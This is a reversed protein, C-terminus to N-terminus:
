QAPLDSCDVRRIDAGIRSLNQEFCEYGRDIHEITLLDTQGHAALAATAIAAGGRLDTCWVTASHLREVGHVLAIRGEVKIDAGMRILEPVHKYRSEFINEVFMSTGKALCAAAMLPSQADTPFGPYPMTRVCRLARLPHKAQLRITDNAVRVNCGMEEFCPLIASLHETCVHTLTIDGGTAAACSLYTAAAIRDSIVRHSASHLSEVGIIHIDGTGTIFINAGCATLFAALDSIEPERAANKIVTEGQALTAAIMINETAGVSPFPLSIVAGHLKDKVHCNLYGHDEEITVGLREIAGLHLDIPRPGLECGGPLSIRAQGCRAIIAGLFVISSRMKRMLDDPICCRSIDSGKVLITNDERKTQSGLYDLINCAATVDTLHPCNHLECDGVLLTAALIPLVSNKAGHIQLSGELRQAGRILFKEM